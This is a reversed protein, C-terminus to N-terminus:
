ILSYCRKQWPTVSWEASRGAGTLGWGCLDDTRQGVRAVNADKGCLSGDLALRVIQFDMLQAWVNLYRTYGTREPHRQHFVIFCIRRSGIIEHLLADVLQQTLVRIDVGDNQATRVIRQQQGLNVFVDWSADADNRLPFIHCFRQLVIEFTVRLNFLATCLSSIHVVQRCFIRLFELFLGLNEEM